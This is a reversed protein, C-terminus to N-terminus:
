IQYPDIQIHLLPKRSISRYKQLLKLSETAGVSEEVPIRLLASSKSLYSIVLKPHETKIGEIVRSIGDCELAFIRWYPPLKVERREQLLQDLGFMSDQLAAAQSLRNKTPLDLYLSGEKNVMALSRFVRQRLAEDARLEPLNQLFKTDLIIVAGYTAVPEAGFTAVVIAGKPAIEITKDSTSMYIPVNPFMKKFEEVIRSAGKALVRFNSSQCFACRWATDSGCIGCLLAGGSKLVLLGGCECKPPEECKQCALVKAYDKGAVLVLVPGRKLGERIVAHYSSENFYIKRSRRKFKFNRELKIFGLEQLRCLELSPSASIFRLSIGTAQHRLLAVDRTNWTPFRREWHHESAEDIIWIEGLNPIQEFIASRLGLMIEPSASSARKKTLLQFPIELEKLFKATRDLERKTPLILLTSQLTEFRDKEQELWDQTYIKSTVVGGKGSRKGVFKSEARMPPFLRLVDGLRAVYRDAVLKAFNFLEPSIRDSELKLISKVPMQNENSVAIIVGSVVEGRFPVRVRSGLVADSLLGEPIAYTFTEPLHFPLDPIAVEAVFKSNISKASLSPRQRKLKLPQVAM